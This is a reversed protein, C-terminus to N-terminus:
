KLCDGLRYGVRGPSPRLRPPGEGRAAMRRLTDPSIGLLRAAEKESIVRKQEVWSPPGDLSVEKPETRDHM